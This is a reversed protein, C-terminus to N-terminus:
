RNINEKRDLIKQVNQHCGTRDIQETHAHSKRHHRLADIHGNAGDNIGGGANRKENKFSAAIHHNRQQTHKGHAKQQAQDVTKQRSLDM